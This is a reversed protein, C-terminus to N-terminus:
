RLEGKWNYYEPHEHQLLCKQRNEYMGRACTYGRFAREVTVDLRFESPINNTLWKIWSDIDLTSRKTHLEVCLSMDILKRGQGEAM